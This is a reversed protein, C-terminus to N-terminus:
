LARKVRELEQRLEARLKERGTETLEGYRIREFDDMVQDIAASVVQGDATFEADLFVSEHSLVMGSFNFKIYRKLLLKQMCGIVGPQSLGILDAAEKLNKESGAFRLYMVVKMEKLDLGYQAGTRELLTDLLKQSYYLDTFVNSEISPSVHVPVIEQGLKKTGPLGPIAADDRAYDILFRYIEPRKKMYEDDDYLHKYFNDYYKIVNTKMSVIGPLNMGMSVLSGETKVYYYIPIQLAFIRDVHLIYEMNFIFDECWHLTEDMRLGYQQVISRKFLKNWLVGYYYDAPNKLMWEGYEERSIVDKATIDGKRSTNDGVVRYFDSIVLDADHEEMARVLLRTADKTIWDDADLFQIYTGQAMGLAQNRTDSVGSNPKHVVTIRSDRAAYEDLIAGSGDKSGDDMLLLEFDTFEQQLISDVCRRIVNEANYVPVIISVKPM